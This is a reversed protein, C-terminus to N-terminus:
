IDVMPRASKIIAIFFLQMITVFFLIVFLTSLELNLNLLSAIIVFMAIGLSPLVCAIILYFLMISNLKRSYVKIQIHQQRTIDDLLKKLSTSVDVGTKLSNVIQRLVLKFTKSTNYEVADELALEIPKGLNIDDVIEKFFKGGVGFSKSADTLANLLPEGSDIKILLYRTAFLIDKSIERERRRIYVKPTNMFFGFFMFYLAVISVLTFTISIRLKQFVMFLIFGIGASLYFSVMINRKVFKKAPIDLHATKLEDKLKKSPKILADFPNTKMKFM